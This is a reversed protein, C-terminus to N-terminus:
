KWKFMINLSWKNFENDTIFNLSLDPSREDLKLKNCFIKINSNYILWLSYLRNSGKPYKLQSTFLKTILMVFNDYELQLNLEFDVPCLLNMFPNLYLFNILSNQVTLYLWRCLLILLKSNSYHESPINKQNWLFLVRNTTRRLWFQLFISHFNNQFDGSPAYWKCYM